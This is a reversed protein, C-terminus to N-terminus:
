VVRHSMILLMLRWVRATWDAPVTCLSLEFPRWWRVPAASLPGAVEQRVLDLGMSVNVLAQEQMLDWAQRAWKTSEAFRVIAYAAEDQIWAEGVVVVGVLSRVDQSHNLLLPARGTNLFTFDAGDM